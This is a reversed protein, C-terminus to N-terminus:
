VSGSSEFTDFRYKFSFVSSFPWVDVVLCYHAHIGGVRQCQINASGQIRHGVTFSFAVCRQM